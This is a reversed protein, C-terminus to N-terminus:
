GKFESAFKSFDDSTLYDAVIEFVDYRTLTDLLTVATMRNLYKTPGVIHAKKIEVGVEQLFILTDLLGFLVEKNMLYNSSSLLMLYSAFALNAIFDSYVYPNAKSKDYFLYGAWWLRSLRNVVMSRSQGHTFFYGSKCSRKEGKLFYRDLEFRLFDRCETHGFAAWFEERSAVYPSIDKMAEFLSRIDGAYDSGSPDSNFRFKKVEIVKSEFTNDRGLEEKFWADDNSRYYEYNDDFNDKFRQLAETTFAQIKFTM